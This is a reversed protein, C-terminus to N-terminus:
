TEKPTQEKKLFANSIRDIIFRYAKSIPENGFLLCITVSFFVAFAICVLGNKIKIAFVKKLARIIGSHVLYILVSNKGISSIISHKESIISIFGGICLFGTAIILLRIGISAIGSMGSYPTSMYLASIRVGFKQIVLLSAVALAFAFFAYLKKLSRIKEIYQEPLLYGAIFFPFFSFTRALSLFDGLKTFGVYLSLLVSLFFASKFMSIPKVLLRWLFLSMLFWLTWQPYTFGLLSGLIDGKSGMLCYLFNFIIYPILCNSITNKYYKESNNKKSFYGSIFIFVPMHFLYIFYYLYRIIVDDQWSTYMKEIFHCFLVLFIM